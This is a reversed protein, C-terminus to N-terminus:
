TNIKYLFTINFDHSDEFNIFKSHIIITELIAYKSVFYKM